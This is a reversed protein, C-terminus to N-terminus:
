SSRDNVKRPASGLADAVLPAGRGGGLMVSNDPLKPFSQRAKAARAAFEGRYAAMSHRAKEVQASIDLLGVEGEKKTRRVAEAQQKRHLKAIKM